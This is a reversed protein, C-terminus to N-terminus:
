KETPKLASRLFTELSDFRAELKDFRAELRDIKANLMGYGESLLRIAPEIRNELIVNIRLLEETHKQQILGIRYVEAAINETDRQLGDLRKDVQEFRKDVQEFRGDTKGFGARMEDRVLSLMGQTAPRDRDEPRYDWREALQAQSM